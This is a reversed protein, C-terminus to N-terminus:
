RGSNFDMYVCLRSLNAVPSGPDAWMVETEPIANGSSDTWQFPISIPYVTRFIKIIILKNIAQCNVYVNFASVINDVYFYRSIKTYYVCCKIYQTCSPLKPDLVQLGMCMVIPRNNEKREHGSQEGKDKYLFPKEHV